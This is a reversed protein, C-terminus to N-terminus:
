TLTRPLRFTSIYYRVENTLVPLATRKTYMEYVLASIVSKLGTPVPKDLTKWNITLTEQVPYYISVTGTNWNVTFYSSSLSTANEKIVSFSTHDLYPRLTFLSTGKHDVVTQYSKARFDYGILNEMLDCASSALNVVYQFVDPFQFPTEIPLGLHILLENEDIGDPLLVTPQSIQITKPM